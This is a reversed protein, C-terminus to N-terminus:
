FSGRWHMAAYAAGVVGAERGLGARVIRCQAALATFSRARVEAMMPARMFALAGSVGGGLVVLEPNFINLLSAIAIGLYTGATSFAWLAVPDGLRAQRYLRRVSFDGGGDLYERPLKARPKGLRSAVLGRLGSASAYSELCGRSGCDCRPGDPNVTMHGLEGAGGRRGHVMEGNVILGGGVGTGLTILVVDRRGRAAGRWYEGLAWANADNEVVVRPGLRSALRRKLPFSKWAAVHPAALVVGARLDLPGPVAVGIARARGWGRAGARRELQAITALINATVAEAAAYSNAPARKILLVRGQMSVAACRLNTGGMDVGIYYRRAM